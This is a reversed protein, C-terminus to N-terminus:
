GTGYAVTAYDDGTGSGRSRGTVFVKSGDPSVGLADPSDWSNGPGNYRRVWLRAGTAADYALTAYDYNTASLYSRGTVFVTSGDPSVGLARAGDPGSGPGRYRKLWLQTGTVADYAITAYDTNGSGYVAEGTVFLKSGDPAVGLAFATDSSRERPPSYRQVWLETGAAADYAVTAYDSDRDPPPSSGTVFVKSGDPSVGLALASDFSGGSDYRRVWLQTGTVADYAVTTYDSGSGSVYSEGTVFIKSGDPSVGLAHPLDPGHEGNYRQLWLQAGTSADYAVTAYDPGAGLAFSSGTVFVETGDPSVALASATDDEDSQGDYRAVWLRKGSAADYAVTAYDPNGSSSGASEGTVFVTSGDPSVGVAYAADTGYGYGLGGDYRAVWLKTGSATDYAITAYDPNVSRSPLSQGTVFVRSGDPSIALAHAEDSGNASGNYRTVWQTRGDPQAASVSVSVLVAVTAVALARARRM